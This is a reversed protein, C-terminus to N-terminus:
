PPATSYQSSDMVNTDGAEEAAQWPALAFLDATEVAGAPPVQARARNIRTRTPRFPTVDGSGDRGSEGAM